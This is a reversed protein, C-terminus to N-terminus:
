TDHHFYESTIQLRIDADQDLMTDLAHMAPYRLM